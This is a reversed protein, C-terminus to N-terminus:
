TFDSRKIIQGNKLKLSVVGTPDILIASTIQRLLATDLEGNQETTTLIYQIRQTEYDESSLADFRAAALSIAKARATSEDFEARELELSFDNKAALVRNSEIDSAPSLAIVDPRECLEKVLEATDDLLRQDTFKVSSAMCHPCHWSNKRERRVPEGCLACRALIRIDKIQPNELKGCTDLTRSTLADATIIAPYINNGLYRSDQLIRAVTNKIWRKGPSYPIDRDNLRDALSGYSSGEAYSDFIMRVIESESEEVCIQGNRMCYGFPLKRYTM